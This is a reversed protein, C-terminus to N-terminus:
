ELVCVRKARGGRLRPRGAAEEEGEGVAEMVVGAAGAAGELVM